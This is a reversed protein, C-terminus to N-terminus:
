YILFYAIGGEKIVDSAQLIVLHRERRNKIVNLVNNVTCSDCQHDKIQILAKQNEFFSRNFPDYVVNKVGLRKLAQTFIDYRGGGIDANLSDPKWNVLRLTSPPKGNSVSTGMSNIEQKPFTWLTKM